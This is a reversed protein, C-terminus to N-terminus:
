TTPHSPGSILDRRVWLGNSFDPAARSSYDYLGYFLFQPHLLDHIAFFDGHRGDRAFNIECYVTDIQRGRLLGSAGRVVNADYGECDTKLLSIHSISNELCFEDLTTMEVPITPHGSAGNQAIRNWTSDQLIQMLSTQKTEGLAACVPTYKPSTVLNSRLESFTDPIPEFGYVARDPFWSVLNQSFTGVNAGADIIAGPRGKLLHLLDSKLSVGRHTSRRVVELGLVGFASRAISGLM